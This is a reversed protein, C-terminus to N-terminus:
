YTLECVVFSKDRSDLISADLAKDREDDDNCGSILCCCIAGFVTMIVKM